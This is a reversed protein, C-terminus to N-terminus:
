SNKAARTKELELRVKEVELEKLKREHEMEQQRLREHAELEKDRMKKMSSIATMLVAMVFAGLPVVISTPAMHMNEEM